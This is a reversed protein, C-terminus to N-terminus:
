SMTTTWPVEESEAPKDLMVAININFIQKIAELTLENGSVTGQLLDQSFEDIRSPDGMEPLVEIIKTKLAKLPM